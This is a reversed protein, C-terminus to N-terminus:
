GSTAARNSTPSADTLRQTRNFRRRPSTAGVGFPPPVGEVTVNASISVARAFTLSAVAPSNVASNFRRLARLCRTWMDLVLRASRRCPYTTFFLTSPRQLTQAGVDSRLPCREQALDPTDREVAQHEEVFGAHVSGHAAAMGPHLASLLQDIAHRHVPAGVERQEARNAESSPDDERALERGRVLITEYGPQLGLQEWLKTAAVNDHHVIEAGMVVMTDARGTSCATNSDDVQRRVRRVEIRDLRAPCELLLVDASHRRAMRIGKSTHSTARAVADRLLMTAVPESM